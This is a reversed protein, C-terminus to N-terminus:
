PLWGYLYGTNPQVSSSICCAQTGTRFTSQATLTLNRWQIRWPDNTNQCGDMLIIQFSHQGSNYYRPCNEWHVIFCNVGNVVKTGYRVPAFNPNMDAQYAWIYPWPIDYSPCGYPYWGWCNSGFDIGGNYEICVSTYNTGAFSFTFGIPIGYACGDDGAVTSFGSTLEYASDYGVSEGAGCTYATELCPTVDVEVCCIDEGGKGDTVRV